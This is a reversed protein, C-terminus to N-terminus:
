LLKRKLFPDKDLIFYYCIHSYHYCYKGNSSHWFKDKIVERKICAKLFKGKWNVGTVCMTYKSIWNNSTLKEIAFDLYHLRIELYVMHTVPTFQFPLNKFAHVMKILSETWTSLQIKGIQIDMQYVQSSKVGTIVWIKITLDTYLSKFVGSYWLSPLLGLELTLRSVNKNDDSPLLWITKLKIEFIQNYLKM